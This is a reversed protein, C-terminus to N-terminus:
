ASAGAEISRRQWVLRVRAGGEPRNAFTVRAGTRELLTKAIFFGLGMGAHQDDQPASPGLDEESLAGRGPRTTVYPEGLRHIIEPAFGPGDDVIELVLSVANGKATLTVMSAAFDVANELLNTLGHLLEASRRIVLGPAEHTDIAIEPGMGRFLTAVEELLAPFPVTATYSEDPDEYSALNGLIDRCRAVQSQLLTLDEAHPSGAGLDRSIDKAVVAITALPSGLEHAAAAALAGLSSLRQERALALQTAGLAASMRTAETAVRFAVIATFGIGLVLAIWLGGIYLPPLGLIEEGEWPLPYHYVALVTVLAFSLMGLAITNRLNLSSAAIATPAIFLIAFPNEIGGTFFLLAALQMQDFALYATTERDSLRRSSPLGASVAVNLAVGALIAAACPWLPLAYGLGFYVIIIALSQGGVALWRLITLTGLRVRGPGAHFFRLSTQEILESNWANTDLGAEVM